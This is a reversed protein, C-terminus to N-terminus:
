ESVVISDIMDDLKPRQQREGPAAAVVQIDPVDDSISGGSHARPTAPLSAPLKNIIQSIIESSISRLEESIANKIENVISSTDIVPTAESSGKQGSKLQQIGDYLINKLESIVNDSLGLPQNPAPIKTVQQTPIVEKKIVKKTKISDEAKEILALLEKISLGRQAALAELRNKAKKIKQIDNNIFGELFLKGLVQMHKMKLSNLSENSVQTKKILLSNILKQIIELEKEIGTSFNAARDHFKMALEFNNHSEYINALYQCTKRLFFPGYPANEDAKPKGKSIIRLLIQIFENIGQEMEGTDGQAKMLILAGEFFRFGELFTQRNGTEAGNLLSVRMGNQFRRLAMLYGADKSKQTVPRDTPELVESFQSELDSLENLVNEIENELKSLEDEDEKSM